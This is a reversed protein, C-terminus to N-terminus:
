STSCPNQLGPTAPELGAEPERYRQGDSCRAVSPDHLMGLVDAVSRGQGHHECQTFSAIRNRHREALVCPVVEDDVVTVAQAAHLALSTSQAIAGDTKWGAAGISVMEPRTRRPSVVDALYIAEGDM